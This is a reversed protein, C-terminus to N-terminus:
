IAALKLRDRIMQVKANAAFKPDLSLTMRPKPKVNLMDRRYVPKNNAKKLDIKPETLNLKNIPAELFTNFADHVEAEWDAVNLDLNQLVEKNEEKEEPSLTKHKKNDSLKNAKRRPPRHKLDKRKLTKKKKLEKRVPKNPEKHDKSSNEIIKAISKLSDNIMKSIKKEELGKNDTYQNITINVTHVKPADVRNSYLHQRDDRGNPYENNPMYNTTFQYSKARNIQSIKRHNNSYNKGM